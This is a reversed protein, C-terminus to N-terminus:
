SVVAADHVGLEGAQIRGRREHGVDQGVVVRIRQASAECLTIDGGHQHLRRQGVAPQHERGGLEDRREVGVHACGTGNEDHVLGVHLERDVATAGGHEAEVRVHEGAALADTATDGDAHDAHGVGDGVDHAGITVV